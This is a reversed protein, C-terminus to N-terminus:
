GIVLEELFNKLERSRIYTRRGIKDVELDGAQIALRITSAQLGAFKAAEKITLFPKLMIDEM